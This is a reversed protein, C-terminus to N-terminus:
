GLLHFAKLRNALDRGTERIFIRGSGPSHAVHIKYSRVTTSSSRESPLLEALERVERAPLVIPLEAGCMLLLDVEPQIAEPSVGFFYDVDHQRPHARSTRIYIRRGIGIDYLKQARYRKRIATSTPTVRLGTLQRVLSLALTDLDTVNTGGLLALPNKTLSVGCKM